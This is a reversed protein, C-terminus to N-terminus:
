TQSQNPPIHFHNTSLPLNSQYYTLSQIPLFHSIPNTSPSLHSQYYTPSPIPQFHSIPNTPSLNSQHCLHSIQTNHSTVSKMTSLDSNIQLLDSIPNKSLLSVSVVLSYIFFLYRISSQGYFLQAIPPQGMFGTPSPFEGKGLLLTSWHYILSSPTPGVNKLM